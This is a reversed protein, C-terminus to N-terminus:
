PGPGRRLVHIGHSAYVLTWRPSAEVAALARRFARPSALPDDEDVVLWRSEKVVPFVYVARRDSLYGALRKSASVPAGAPVLGLAHARASRGQDSGFVTAADHRVTAIPSSYGAAAVAGAFVALALPLAPRRARAAGLISAAVVFPVIGATYQYTITTQAPKSSLLDIALDPAAGLALWPELAWLGAFPVLLLVLYLLKHWTAVAHVLNGPDTFAHVLIGGPTGGVDEYRGVFPDFGGLAYHPIVVEFDVVSAAFGLVAIALGARPHGKRLAYWVGLCGVAAPIEEKTAAALLAFAAFPLLREEDLFWIAFLVLPAALSVSHFGVDPTYANYQTAPYALYALVFFVPARPDRLHKRALKYVPLAGAAVVVAQAVLLLQPSPWAWWFPVFLALFPDVHTGLRTTQVGSLTTSGLFSGHATSWVAQVMNGLDLRSERYAHYQLSASAAFIAAYLAAAAGALLPTRGALHIAGGPDGGGGHGPPPALRRTV